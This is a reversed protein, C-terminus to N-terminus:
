FIEVVSSILDFHQTYQLSFSEEHEPSDHAKICFCTKNLINTKFEVNIQKSIQYHQASILLLYCVTQWWGM